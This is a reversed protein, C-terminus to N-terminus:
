GILFLKENWLLEASFPVFPLLKLIGVARGSELLHLWLNHLEFLRHTIRGAARFVKIYVHMLHLQHVTLSVEICRLCYYSHM